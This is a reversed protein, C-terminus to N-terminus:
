LDPRSIALLALQGGDIYLTQGTIFAAQESAMFAVAPAIDAARVPALDCSAFCACLCLFRCRM